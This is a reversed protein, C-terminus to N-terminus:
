RYASDHDPHLSIFRIYDGSRLVVARHKGTIRITYLKQGAPTRRSRIEEWHLGKDRVVQDWTMASLKRLTNLVAHRDDKGQEFLGALFVPNNLDLLVKRDKGSRRM